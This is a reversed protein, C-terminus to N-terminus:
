FTIMENVEDFDLKTNTVTFEFNGLMSCILCNSFIELGNFMFPKNENKLDEDISYIAIQKETNLKNKIEAFNHKWINNELIFSQEIYDSIRANILERKKIDIIFVDIYDPSTENKHYVTHNNYKTEYSM